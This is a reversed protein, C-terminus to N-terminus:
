GIDADLARLATDSRYDSKLKELIRSNLRQADIDSQKTTAAVRKLGDLATILSQKAQESGSTLPAAGGGAPPPSEKKNDGAGKKPFAPEVVATCCLALLLLPLIRRM